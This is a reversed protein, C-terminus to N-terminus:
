FSYALSGWPLMVGVFATSNALTDIVTSRTRSVAWRDGLSGGKTFITAHGMISEEHDTWMHSQDLAPMLERLRIQARHVELLGGPHFHTPVAM